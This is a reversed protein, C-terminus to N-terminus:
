QQFTISVMKSKRLGAFPSVSTTCLVTTSVHFWNTAGVARSTYWFILSDLFEDDPVNDFSRGDPVNRFGGDIRLVLKRFQVCFQVVTYGTRNM